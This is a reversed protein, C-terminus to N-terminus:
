EEPLSPTPGRQANLDERLFKRLASFRDVVAARWQDGLRDREPSELSNRASFFSGKANESLVIGGENYYWDTIADALDRAQQFTLTAIRRRSTRGSLEWLKRYEILREELLKVDYTSALQKLEELARDFRKAKITVWASMGGSILVAAVSGIVTLLEREVIEGEENRQSLNRSSHYPLIKAETLKVDGSPWPGDSEYLPTGQAIPLPGRDSRTRV